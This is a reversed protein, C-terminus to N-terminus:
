ETIPHEEHFATGDDLNVLVDVALIQSPDFGQPLRATGDRQKMRSIAFFRASEGSSIELEQRTGNRLILRYHVQGAVQQQDQSVLDYRVRLRQRGNVQALFNMVRVPSKSDSILPLKPAEPTSQEATELSSNGNPPPGATHSEALTANQLPAGLTANHGTAGSTPRGAPQTANNGHQLLALIDSPQGQVAPATGTGPTKPDGSSSGATLDTNLTQPPASGMTSAITEVNSLQELKLRADALEREAARVDDALTWTRYRYHAGVYIGAAGAVPLLVLLLICFRLFGGRVRLSRVAGDDRMFMVTYHTKKAIVPKM